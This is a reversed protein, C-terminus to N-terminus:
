RDLYDENHGNVRVLYRFLREINNNMASIQGRFRGLEEKFNAFVETQKATTEQWRRDSEAEVDIRKTELEHSLEQRRELFKTLWPWASRSFWLGCGIIIISFLFSFAYEPSYNELITEM